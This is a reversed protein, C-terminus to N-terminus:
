MKSAQWSITVVATSQSQCLMRQGMVILVFYSPFPSSICMTRNWCDGVNGTHLHYFHEWCKWEECYVSRQVWINRPVGFQFFFNAFILCQEESASFILMKKLWSLYSGLPSDTLLSHWDLYSHPILYPPSRFRLSSVRKISLCTHCM